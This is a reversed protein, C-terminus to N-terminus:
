PGAYDASERGGEPLGEDTVFFLGCVFVKLDRAAVFVMQVSRHACDIWVGSNM